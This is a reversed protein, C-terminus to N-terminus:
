RKRKTLGLALLPLLGFFGAVPVNAALNPNKDLFIGQAGDAVLFHGINTWINGEFDNPYDYWRAYRGTNVGFHAIGDGDEDMFMGYLTSGYGANSDINNNSHFLSRFWDTNYDGVDTWAGTSPTTDPSAFGMTSQLLALVEEATAYRFGKYKDDSSLDNTMEDFSKGFTENLTLWTLQTETDYLSRNDGGELWDDKILEANVSASVFISVSLALTTLIRM